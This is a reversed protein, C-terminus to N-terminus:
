RVRVDDIFSGVADADNERFTIRDNGTGIVTFTSPLWSTTSVGKGNRAVTGLNAGNWHVTFKNSNTAVGPSPSQLFSLTYSRGAVTAVTQEVSNGRGARDISIM